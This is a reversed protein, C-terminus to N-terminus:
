NLFTRGLTFIAWSTMALRASLNSQRGEGGGQMLAGPYVTRDALRQLVDMTCASLFSAPNRCYPGNYVPNLPIRRREGM